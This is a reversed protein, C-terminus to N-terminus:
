NTQKKKKFENKQEKSLFLCLILLQPQNENHKREQIQKPINIEGCKLIKVVAMNKCIKMSVSIPYNSNM